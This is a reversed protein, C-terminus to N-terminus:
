STIHGVVREIQEFGVQLLFSSNRGYSKSGLVFFGPEPTTLTEIGDASQDLCDGSSDLLTAALDMPGETAYCLHVQLDRFLDVDPRYGVNAVIRDVELPPREDLFGLEFPAGQEGGAGGARIESVTGVHIEVDDSQRFLENGLEALRRRQPLPDEELVEYPAEDRSLLWHIETQPARDRLELLGNLTTMASYGEGIVLVRRGAFRDGQSGLIDPVYYDIQERHREEGRALMGGPGIGNPTRYAGSTDFVYDAAEFERGEGREVALLFPGDARAPDGVHQSKRVDRRSVAVVEAHSEIRGELRPLSALPELYRELYEGGTPFADDAALEVGAERLAATGWPSRNLRWPSFFEDHSWRRLHAGPTEAEFVRVDFGRDAAYLAAELGIPGAGVVALRPADNQRTSATTEANM